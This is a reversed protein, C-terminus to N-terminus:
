VLTRKLVRVVIEGLDGINQILKAARINESTSESVISMLLALKEKDAKVPVILSVEKESMETLSSIEEDLTKNTKERAEEALKKFRESRTAM